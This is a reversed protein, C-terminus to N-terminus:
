VWGRMRYYALGAYEHMAESFTVLNRPTPILNALDEYWATPESVPARFDTPAPVFEIGPCSHRFVAVSRPMHLASTVLVVRKYGQQNFLPLLNLAHEHTNRARKELTIVAKPVGVNELLIQMDEAAPHSSLRTSSCGGTCIIHAACGQQYLYAAYLVRDGADDVEVTPRPSIRPLIGGSLVVLCDGQPNGDLSIFQRELHRVLTKTLWGNGCVLLLGLGLWLCGQSFRRRKNWVLASLVLMLSIFLPQFLKFVILQM